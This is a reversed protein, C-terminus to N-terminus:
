NLPTLEEMPQRGYEISVRYFYSFGFRPPDVAESRSSYESLSLRRRLGIGNLDDLFEIGNTVFISRLLKNTKPRIRRKNGEFELITRLGAGTRRSLDKATWGLLNRALRCQESNM